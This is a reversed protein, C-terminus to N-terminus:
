VRLEELENVEGDYHEIYKFKIETKASLEEGRKKLIRAYPLTLPGAIMFIRKAGANSAIYFDYDMREATNECIQNFKYDSDSIEESFDGVFVVPFPLDTFRTINQSNINISIVVLCDPSLSRIRQLECSLRRGYFSEQAIRHVTIRIGKHLDARGICLVSGLYEFVFKNYTQELVLVEKVDPQFIPKVVFKKKLLGVIARAALNPKYGMKRAVACVYSARRNIREYSGKIKGNLIRSM